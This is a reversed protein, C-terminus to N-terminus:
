CLSHAVLDPDLSILPTGLGSFRMVPSQPVLVGSESLSMLSQSRNARPQQPSLRSPYRMVM